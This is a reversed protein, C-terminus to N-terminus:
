LEFSRKRAVTVVHKHLVTQTNMNEYVSSYM